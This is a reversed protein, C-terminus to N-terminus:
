QKKRYSARDVMRAAVCRGNIQGRTLTFTDIQCLEQQQDPYRPLSAKQDLVIGCCYRAKLALRFHKTILLNPNHSCRDYQFYSMEEIKRNHWQGSV